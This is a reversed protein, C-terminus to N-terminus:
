FEMRMIAHYGIGGDKYPNWGKSLWGGRLERVSGGAKSRIYAFSYASVALNGYNGGRTVVLQNYGKKEAIDIKALLKKTIKM